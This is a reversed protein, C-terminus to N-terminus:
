WIGKMLGGDVPISTGTVYGGQRSALFAVVAALEEPEGLRGLPIDKEALKTAEEISIGLQQATRERLVRQRDTMIRGTIINNVTIHDPGLEESLTKALGIVGPRIANSLILGDIPERVSTSVLNIIRGGGQQRMHPLAAHVMRVVSMLSLEFAQHWQEESMAAFHGPPPGGANCVLIDLRGLEGVTQEVVGRIQGPNTVDAQIVLARNGTKEIERATETLADLDRAFIAVNVGEAALAVACARGLGKSAAAM